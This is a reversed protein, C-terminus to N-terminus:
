AYASLAIIVGIVGSAIGAYWFSPQKTLVAISCLVLALEVALEALDLRDGRRRAQYSEVRKGESEYELEHAEKVLAEAKIKLAPMDTERYKRIEDTWTKATESSRADAGPAKGLASLLGLSAELQSSRNNKAQYYGWQDSAETHHINASTTLRNAEALLSLSEDHARHSLMTVCALVAAIIAMTMAVRRDFPDLRQEAQEGPRDLGEPKIEM